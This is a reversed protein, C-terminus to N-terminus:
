HTEEELLNSLVRLAFTGIIISGIVVLVGTASAEGYDNGSFFTDYVSFPLNQTSLGGSTLTFVTDFNQVIYISGLLISLEMYQRLHPLTLFRFQDWGSAGDVKAADLIESSRSQLGALLILMMFPTWQWVLSAIIAGKPYRSIWSVQPVGDWGIIRGFENLLGNLLGYDPNFIAHKWILASAIPVILFPAIMLTRVLGRGLFKRDLLLAALLGLLLSILVTGVTYIVTNLISTRLTPDSFVAKYNDIGIFDHAGPKLANWDLTSIVLTAVFPIQTIVILFILAPLLPARRSWGERKSRKPGTPMVPALASAPPTASTSAAM